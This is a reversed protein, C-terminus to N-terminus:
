CCYRISSSSSSDVRQDIEIKILFIANAADNDDNDDDAAAAAAAANEKTVVVFLVVM